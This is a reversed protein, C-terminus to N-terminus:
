LGGNRMDRDSERVMAIIEEAQIVHARCVDERNEVALYDAISTTLAADARSQRQVDARITDTEFM